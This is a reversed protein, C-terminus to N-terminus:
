RQVLSLPSNQDATNMAISLNKEQLRKSIYGQLVKVAPNETAFHGGDLLWFDADFAWCALSHKIEATLLVDAGQHMAQQAFDGCSGGCVAVSVIEAPRPGAELLWPPAITSYIRDLFQRASIPTDYFGIRGLGCAADHICGNTSSILPRTGSLGLLDALIDSVGGPAADLNTHCGIVSISEALAGAIFRGGPTDTQIDKLAHFIAPHHTIIVNAGLKKAEAILPLVPDLALLIGRVQDAKSGILLGVNDWKEALSEPAIEELIGTLEQVTLTM